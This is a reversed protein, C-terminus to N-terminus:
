ENPILNGWRDVSYGPRMKPLEKVPPASDRGWRLPPFEFLPVPGISIKRNQISVPVSLTPAGGDGPQAMMGLVVRAMTADRGRVVGREELRDVTDFFGQIRAALAGVPQLRDDLALTGGTSLMLPPWDAYLRDLEVTGGDDRWQSLAQWLSTPPLVGLLRAEMELHRFEQGLPQELTPPLTLGRGSAALKKTPTKFDVAGDDPPPLDEVHATLSTLILPSDGGRPAARLGALDLDFAALQSRSTADVTLVMRDATLDYVADGLELTQTGFPQVTPRGASVPTTRVIVRPASWTLDPTTIRPRPVVVAVSLPFGDVDLPGHDISWGAARHAEIWTEVQTELTDAMAFWLAAYGVVLILLMTPAVVVVPIKKLFKVMHVGQRPEM